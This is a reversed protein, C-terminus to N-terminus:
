EDKASKSRNKSRNEGIKFIWTFVSLLIASIFLGAGGILMDYIDFSRYSLPIQILELAVVVISGLLFWLITNLKNGFLILGCFMWPLYVLFHMIYDADEASRLPNRLGLDSLPLSLVAILLVIYLTVTYKNFLLKM